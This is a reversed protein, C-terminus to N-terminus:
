FTTRRVGIMYIPITAVQTEQGTVALQYHDVGVGAGPVFELFRAAEVDVFLRGLLELQIAAEDTEVISPDAPDTADIAASLRALQYYKGDASFRLALTDPVFAWQLRARGSLVFSVSDLDDLQTPASDDDMVITARQDYSELQGGAGAWVGAAVPAGLHRIGLMGGGRLLLTSEDGDLIADSQVVTTSSDFLVAEINARFDLRTEDAIALSFWGDGGGFVKVTSALYEDSEFEIVSAGGAASLGWSEGDYGLMGEGVINFNNSELRPIGASASFLVNCLAEGLVECRVLREAERQSTARAFRLFLHAADLVRDDIEARAGLWAHLTDVAGALNADLLAQLTSWAEPPLAMNRVHTLSLAQQLTTFEALLLRKAASADLPSATWLDHAARLEGYGAALETVFPQEAASPAAGRVAVVTDAIRTAADTQTAVPPVGNGLAWVISVAVGVPDSGDAVPPACEEAAYGLANAVRHAVEGPEFGGRAAAALFAVAVRQDAPLSGLQAALSNVPATALDAILSSRLASVDPSACTQPLTPALGQEQCLHRALAALLENAGYGVDTVPLPGHTQDVLPGLAPSGTGVACFPAAHAAGSIAVSTAVILLTPRPM